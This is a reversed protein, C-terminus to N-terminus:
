PQELSARIFMIAEALSWVTYVAAGAARLRAHCAAQETSLTNNGTKVELLVVRGHPGFITLDPYGPILRTKKDMRPRLVFHGRREADTQIQDQLEKEMGAVHKERKEADKAAAAVPARARALRAEAQDLDFQSWKSM